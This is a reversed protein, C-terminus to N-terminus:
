KTELLSYIRAASNDKVESRSFKLFEPLKLHKNTM